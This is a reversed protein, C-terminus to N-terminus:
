LGAAGVRTLHASTWDSAVPSSMDKLINSRIKLLRSFIQGVIIMQDLSGFIHNYEFEPHKEKWNYKSILVQCSTIHEQEDRNPCGFFCQMDGMKRYKNRFNDKIQNITRSRLRFLTSAECNTIESCKLYSQTELSNYKINKTKSHNEQRDSLKKFLTLMIKNKVMKSFQKKSYSLIENESMSLGIQKMSEQVSLWWDGQTPNGQQARLVRKTLEEEERTLLGGRPHAPLWDEQQGGGM